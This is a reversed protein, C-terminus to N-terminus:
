KLLSGDKPPMQLYFGQEAVSSVVEKADSLALKSDETIDLEMVFVPEGFVKMLPEPLESFDDQKAVFLYTDPKKNSKYIFTQM